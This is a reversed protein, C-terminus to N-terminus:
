VKDENTNKVRGPKYINKSHKVSDLTSPQPLLVTASSTDSKHEELLNNISHDPDSPLAKAGRAVEHNNLKDTNPPSGNEL